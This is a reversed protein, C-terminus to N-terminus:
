PKPVDWAVTVKGQGSAVVVELGSTKPSQYKQPVLSRPLRKSGMVPATDWAEVSVAYRGPVLGDGSSFSTARFQGSTDFRAWAPRIPMGAAPEASTFFLMGGRPWPGGAYTIKGAVPVVEPGNRGCGAFLLLAMALFIGWRTTSRFESRQFPNFATRRLQFPNFDTRRLLRLTTRPRTM